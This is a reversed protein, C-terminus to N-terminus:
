SFDAGINTGAPSGSGILDSGGKLKLFNGLCITGDSNWTVSPTLSVFDAGSCVLGKANVSRGNQWWVSSSDVDTGSVKDSSKGEYSLCNIFRHSGKDFSFNRGSKTGNHFATCNQLTISGPNSNYTFGHKSNNFSVCNKVIHSVAIESGGLKFGNGDSNSTGQGSSTSGNSYAVCSEITVPGIAGTSKKTYLDWGDDTNYCAICQRFVNGNGATLKCAFGDADEGNDPDFNDHSACKLILNDSPWEDKEASPEYRGIQLGTDRNQDTECSEIVNHNGAVYIGNDASGKVELGLIHWYSGNIQLGRPNNTKSPDGYPQSSFDLVVDGEGYPRITKMCGSSGDNGREIVLRDTYRYTGPLMYITGGPSVMTVAAYLTVPNELTGSSGAAGNPSVYVASSQAANGIVTGTLSAVSLVSLACIFFRQFLRKM